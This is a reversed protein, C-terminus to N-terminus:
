GRNLWEHLLSSAGALSLLLLLPYSPPVFLYLGVVFAALWIGACWHCTLLYGVAYRWGHGKIVIVDFEQQGERKTTVQLFYARFPSTIEDELMLRVLRFTALSLVLWEVWGIALTASEM